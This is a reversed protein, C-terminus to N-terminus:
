KRESLEEVDIIAAEGLSAELSSNKEAPSYVDEFAEAELRTADIHAAATNMAAESEAILAATDKRLGNMGLLLRAGPTFRNLMTYQETLRSLQVLAPKWGEELRREQEEIMGRQRQVSAYQITLVERLSSLNPASLGDLGKKLDQGIRSRVAANDLPPLASVGTKAQLEAALTKREEDSIAEYAGLCRLLATYEAQREPLARLDSEVAAIRAELETERAALMEYDARMNRVVEPLAKFLAYGKLAADQLAVVQELLQTEPSAPQPELEPTYRKCGRGFFRWLRTLSSHQKRYEVLAGQVGSDYQRQDAERAQALATLNAEAEAAPIGSQEVYQELAQPASRPVLYRGDTVPNAM